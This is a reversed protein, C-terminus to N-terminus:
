VKYRYQLNCTFSALYRGCSSLFWKLLIIEWPIAFTLLTWTSKHYVLIIFTCKSYQCSVWHAPYPWGFYYQHPLLAWPINLSFMSDVEKWREHRDRLCFHKNREVEIDVNIIRQLCDCDELCFHGTSTLFVTWSLTQLVSMPSVYEKFFTTATSGSIESDVRNSICFPTFYVHLTTTSFNNATTFVSTSQTTGTESSFHKLQTVTLEIVILNAASGSKYVYVVLKM